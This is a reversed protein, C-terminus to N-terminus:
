AKLIKREWRYDDVPKAKWGEERWSVRAKSVEVLASESIMCDCDFDVIRM